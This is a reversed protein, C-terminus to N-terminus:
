TYRRSGSQREDTVDYVKINYEKEYIKRYHYFLDRSSYMLEGEPDGYKAALEGFSSFAAYYADDLEELEKVLEEASMGEYRDINDERVSILLARKTYEPLGEEIWARESRYANSNLLSSLDGPLSKLESEKLRVDSLSKGRGEEHPIFFRVAAGATKLLLALEEVQSVNESTLPVGASVELGAEAAERMMSRILSFDGKMGAFKDHYGPLGYVTFNLHKVGEEKLMLALAKCEEDSREKMGDCQLFEAQPSGIGKLFRIAEKLEPHEMSYGFSLSCSMDPALNKMESIFRLAFEKSREWPAGVCNGDWSLLCYRCRCGCPVCLSQIMISETKVSM